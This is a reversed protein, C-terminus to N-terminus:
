HVVLNWAVKVFKYVGGWLENFRFDGEFVIFKLYMVLEELVGFFDGCADNFGNRCQSALAEVFIVQRIGNCNKVIDDDGVWIFFAARLANARFVIEERFFM